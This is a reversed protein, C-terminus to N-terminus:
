AAAQGLLAAHQHAAALQQLRPRETVVVFHWPRANSGSPAAMASRLLTEIEAADIPRDTYRRISRRAFINDLASQNITM